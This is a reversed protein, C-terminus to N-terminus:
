NQKQVFLYEVTGSTSGKSNHNIRMQTFSLHIDDVADEVSVDTSANNYEFWTVGDNSVEITYEPTGGTLGIATPSVSWTYNQCSMLAESTESITADHATGDSFIFTREIPHKM